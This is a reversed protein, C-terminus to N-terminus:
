SSSSPGCAPLPREWATSIRVPVRDGGVVTSTIRWEPKGYRRTSREFLECAAAVTKGFETYSLPNAPNKYFIRSADAFANTIM